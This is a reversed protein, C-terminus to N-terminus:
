RCNFSQNKEENSYLKIFVQSNIQKQVENNLERLSSPKM